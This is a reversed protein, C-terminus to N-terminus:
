SSIAAFDVGEDRMILTEFTSVGLFLMINYHSYRTIIRM